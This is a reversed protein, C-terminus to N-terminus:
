QAGDAALPIELRFCPGEGPGVEVLGLWGGLASLSERAAHLGLGADREQKTTYDADFIRDRLSPPVGPGSDRVECVALSGIPRLSIGVWGGADVAELSNALVNLLAVEVLDRGSGVRASGMIETRVEVRRREAHPRVLALLSHILEALDFSEKSEGGTPLSQLQVLGGALRDLEHDLAGLHREPGAGTAGAAERELAKRLLDVNIRMATLPARMDHILQGFFKAIARHRSAIRLLKGLDIPNARVMALYGTFDDEQVRTLDVHVEHNRDGGLGPGLVIQQARTGSDSLRNGIRQRLEPWRERLDEESAAGLDRLASDNAFAIEGDESVLLVGDPLRDALRRFVGAAAKPKDDTRGPV